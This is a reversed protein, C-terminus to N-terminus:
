QVNILKIRNCHGVEGIVVVAQMYGKPQLGPRAPTFVDPWLEKIKAIAEDIADDETLCGVGGIGDAETGMTWIYPGGSEGVFLVEILALTRVNAASSGEDSSTFLAKSVQLSKM